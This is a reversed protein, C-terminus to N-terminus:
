ILKKLKFIKLILNYGYSEKDYNYIKTENNSLIKKESITKDKNLCYESISNTRHITIKLM